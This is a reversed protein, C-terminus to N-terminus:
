LLGSTRLFEAYDSIPRNIDEFDYCIYKEDIIKFNKNKINDLIVATPVNVVKFKSEHTALLIPISKM